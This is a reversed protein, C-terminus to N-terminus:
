GGVAGDRLNLSLTSREFCGQPQTGGWGRDVSAPAAVPPLFKDAVTTYLAIPGLQGPSTTHEV